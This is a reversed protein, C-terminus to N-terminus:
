DILQCEISAKIDAYRLEKGNVIDLKDNSAYDGVDYIYLFAVEPINSPELDVIKGTRIEGSADQYQVMRGIIEKPM